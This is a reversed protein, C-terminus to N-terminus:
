ICLRYFVNENGTKFNKAGGVLGWLWEGRPCGNAYPLFSGKFWWSIEQHHLEPNIHQIPSRTKIPPPTAAQAYTPEKSWNTFATKRATNTRIKIRGEPHRITPSEDQSVKEARTQLLNLQKNRRNFFNSSLLANKNTVKCDSKPLPTPSRRMSPPPSQTDPM